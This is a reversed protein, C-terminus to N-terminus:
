SGIFKDVITLIKNKIEIDDVGRTRNGQAPKLNIMSDFEVREGKELEPYINIGWLDRQRSGGEILLAEEDAHLEGGIAMIGKEIDVVAKVFNGFGAQAMKHLSELLIPKKLLKM